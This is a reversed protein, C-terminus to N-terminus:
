APELVKFINTKPIHFLGFFVINSFYKFIGTYRKTLM